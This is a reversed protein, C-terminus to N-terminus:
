IQELIADSIKTSIAAQVAPDHALPAVTEVYRDTDGVQDHAWTAVIALPALLAVLLLCVVVVPTRWWGGRTTTARSPPGGRETELRAVEERLEDLRATAEPEQAPDDHAAVGNM